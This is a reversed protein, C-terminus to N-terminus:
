SAVLGDMVVFSAPRTLLFDVRAVGVIELLLNSAFSTTDDLIRISPNMRVGIVMDRFNGLVCHYNEPSTPTDANTTVFRPVNMLSPPMELTTNDGSIGTKLQEYTRWINPHMIIGSLEDLRNNANLFATVGTVLEDYNTPTGVSNVANIGDENILGKILLPSGSGAGQIGAQDIAAGFAATYARTIQAGFDPIDQSAELSVQTRVAVTVATLSRAVFTPDTASLAAGETARWSFTPDATQHAYNVTQTEMPVTRAGAAILVSQARAMDIWQPVFEQPVLVGTSGTTVSKQESVFEVAEKDSCNNGFILARAWRELSVPSKQKPQLEPIDSLKVEPPLSFCKKGDSYFEGYAKAASGGPIAPRNRVAEIREVRDILESVQADNKEAFQEFADNISEVADLIPNSKPDM